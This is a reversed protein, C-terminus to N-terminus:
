DEFFNRRDASGISVNSITGVTTNTLVYDVPEARRATGFFYDQLEIKTALLVCRLRLRQGASLLVVCAEKRRFMAMPDVDVILENNYLILNRPSTAGAFLSLQLTVLETDGLTDPSLLKWRRVALFQGFGVEDTHQEAYILATQDHTIGFETAGNRPALVEFAVVPVYAAVTDSERMSLRVITARRASVNHVLVYLTRGIVAFALRPPINATWPDPDSAYTLVQGGDSVELMAIVLRNSPQVFAGVAFGLFDRGRVARPEIFMTVNQLAGIQMTSMAYNFQAIRTPGIAYHVNRHSITGTQSINQNSGSVLWRERTEFLRVFVDIEPAFLFTIVPIFGVSDSREEDEEHNWAFPIACLLMGHDYARPVIHPQWANRLTNGVTSRYLRDYLKWLRSATAQGAFLMEESQGREEEPLMWKFSRAIVERAAAMPHWCSDPDPSLGFDRELLMLWLRPDACIARDNEANGCYNLIDVYALRAFEQALERSVRDASM